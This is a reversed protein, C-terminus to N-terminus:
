DFGNSFIVNSVFVYASGSNTTDANDMFAGVLYQNFSVSVSVGFFSGGTADSVELKQSQSWSTGDFDFVYVSGSNANHGPSGILLRDTSHSVSLGLFDFEGGDSVLLKQTQNWLMGDYEYVYVSGANTGGDDDRDSGVVARNGQLSVSIGFRDGAEGDDATMKQTLNWTNGDYDFIYASGSDQGNDDDDSASILARDQWLSVSRGLLDDQQGDIPLIKQDLNWTSGNFAYVYAAGANVGNFDDGLAGILARNEFLSVSIGFLAGFKVDDPELIQSQTWTTGNYAFVYAAGTSQNKESAGILAFDGYLSVSYGFEDNAAGDSAMLKQSQNWTTGDFDFVYVAGSDEGNEDDTFAGVIARNEFISVSWGFQDNKDADSATLKANQMINKLANAKQQTTVAHPAYESLTVDRDAVCIQSISISLILLLFRHQFDMSKEKLDISRMRSKSQKVAYLIEDMDTM